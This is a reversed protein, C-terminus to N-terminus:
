SPFSTPAHEGHAKVIGGEDGRQEQTNTISKDASAEELEFEASASSWMARQAEEARWQISAAEEVQAVYVDFEEQSAFTSLEDAGLGRVIHIARGSLPTPEWGIPPGSVTLALSFPVAISVVAAFLIGIWRHRHLM